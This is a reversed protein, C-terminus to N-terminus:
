DGLQPVIYIVRNSNSNFASVACSVLRQADQPNECFDWCLVVVIYRLPRLWVCKLLQEVVDFQRQKVLYVFCDQM